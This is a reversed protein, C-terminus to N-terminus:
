GPRHGRHDPGDLEAPLDGRDGDHSGSEFHDNRAPQREVRHRDVRDYARALVLASQQTENATPGLVAQNVAYLAEAVEVAKAPDGVVDGRNKGTLPILQVRAKELAKSMQESRRQESPEYIVLDGAPQKRAQTLAEEARAIAM